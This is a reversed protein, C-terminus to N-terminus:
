YKIIKFSPKAIKDIVVMNIDNNTTKVSRFNSAANCLRKPGLTIPLFPDICITKSRTFSKDFLRNIIGLGVADKDGM